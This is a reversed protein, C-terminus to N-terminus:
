EFGIKQPSSSRQRPLARSEPGLTGTASNTPRWTTPPMTAEGDAASREHRRSVEEYGPSGCWRGRRALPRGTGLQCSRRHAASAKDASSAPLADLARRRRARAAVSANGQCARWAELRACARARLVMRCMAPKARAGRELWCRRRRSRDTTTWHASSRPHAVRAGASAASSARLGVRARSPHQGHEHELRQRRRAQAGRGAAGVSCRSSTSLTAADCLRERKAPATSGSAPTSVSRRWCGLFRKGTRGSSTRRSAAVPAHRPRRRLGGQGSRAHLRRSCRCAPSCGGSTEDLLDYSWEITARLTQQRQPADRRGGTLLPLRPELRELLQEPSYCRADAGGGARDRAAPRGPPPLDRAVAELPSPSRPASASSSSRRAAAPLPVVPYEHEGAIRLLARPQHRAPAPESCSDLLERSGAGGRRVQEFNDLLLLMRRDGVHDALATRAGLTQGVTRCSSSRLRALAALPVWFVGDPFDDVLEAAAQLALADQGHRGPRHAHGAADGDRVLEIVEDLERERGVLPEAARAPEDPEAVACRRFTAARRAPLAPRARGLDKLRHEGLDRLEM